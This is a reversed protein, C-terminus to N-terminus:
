NKVKPVKSSYNFIRKTVKNIFKRIVKSKYDRLLTPRRLTKKKKEKDMRDNLTFLMKM